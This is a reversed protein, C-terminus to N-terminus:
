KGKILFILGFIGIFVSLAILLAKWIKKNKYELNEPYYKSGFYITIIFGGAINLFYALSKYTESPSIFVLILIGIYYLIGFTIVSDRGEKKMTKLNQSFLIAGAISSFFISFSIIAKDSYLELSNSDIHQRKQETNDVKVKQKNFSEIIKDCKTKLGRKEADIVALKWFEEQYDNKSKIVDLLENDSLLRIKEHFDIIMLRKKQKKDLSHGVIREVVFNCCLPFLL